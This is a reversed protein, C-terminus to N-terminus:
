CCRSVHTRVLFFVSEHETYPSSVDFNGFFRGFFFFVSLVSLFHYKSTPWQWWNIRHYLPYSVQKSISPDRSRFGGPANKKRKQLVKQTKIQFNKANKNTEWLSALPSALLFSSVTLLIWNFVSPLLSGEKLCWQSTRHEDTKREKKEGERERESRTDWQGSYSSM